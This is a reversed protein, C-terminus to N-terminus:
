SKVRKYIFVILKFLLMSFEFGLIISLVALLDVVPIIDSFPSLYGFASAVSSSMDGPLEAVQPLFQIFVASFLTLFASWLLTIIM